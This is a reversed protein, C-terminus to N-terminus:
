VGRLLKAYYKLRESLDRRLEWRIKTIPFGEHGPDLKLRNELLTYRAVIDENSMEPHDMPYVADVARLRQTPNMTLEVMTHLIRVDRWPVFTSADYVVTPSTRSEMEEHWRETQECKWLASYYVVKREESSSEGSLAIDGMGAKRQAELVKTDLHHSEYSERHVGALNDLGPLFQPVDEWPHKLASYLLVHEARTLTTESARAEPLSPTSMGLALIAAYFKHDIQLLNQPHTRPNLLRVYPM